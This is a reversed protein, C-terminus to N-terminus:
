EWRELEEKLARNRPAFAEWGSPARGVIAHFELVMKRNEEELITQRKRVDDLARRLRWRELLLGACYVSSILTALTAGTM